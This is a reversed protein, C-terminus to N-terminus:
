QQSKSELLQREVKLNRILAMDESFKDGYRASLKEINVNEVLEMTTDLVSCLLNLYWDQDGMEEVLNVTDLPKGYFLHKKLADLMEGSETALGIVAHLIRITKKNQFRALMEETVPAETRSALRIRTEPDLRTTYEVLRDAFVEALRHDMVIEECRPDCWVQAAIEIAKERIM